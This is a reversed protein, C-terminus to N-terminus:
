KLAVIAMNMIVSLNMHMIVSLDMHVIASLHMHMVLSLNVVWAATASRLGGMAMSGAAASSTTGELSVCLRFFAGLLSTPSAWALNTALRISPKLWTRAACLACTCASLRKGISSMALAEAAAAGGSLEEAAAAGFLSLVACLPLDRVRACPLLLVFCDVPPSLSLDRSLSVVGSNGRSFVTRHDSKLLAVFVGCFIM